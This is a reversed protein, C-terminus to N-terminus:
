LFCYLENERYDNMLLLTINILHFHFAVVNNSHKYFWVKLKAVNKFDM